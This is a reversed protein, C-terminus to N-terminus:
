ETSELAVHCLYSTIVSERIKGRGTVASNIVRRAFVDHKQFESGCYLEEILPATSNSMMWDCYGLLRKLVDRLERQNEPTFDNKTYRTFHSTRSLPEYPPDLYVFDGKSLYSECQQFPCVELTVNRLLASVQMLHNADYITPNKYRGMPVNFRGKSNLRHLGNFCTKNLYIFRAAREAKETPSEARIAYYYAKREEETIGERNHHAKHEALAEIVEAVNDRIERWTHILEENADLLTCARPSLNQVVYFFVAGSGLFPEVYNRGRLTSPLLAIYQELLRGKGGAWKLFPRVQETAHPPM